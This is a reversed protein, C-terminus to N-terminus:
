RVDFHNNYCALNQTIYVHDLIFEKIKNQDINVMETISKNVGGNARLDIM